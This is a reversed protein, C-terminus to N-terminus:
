YGGHTTRSSPALLDQALPRDRIIFFGAAGELVDVNQPLAEVRALWQAKQKAYRAPDAYALGGGILGDFPNSQAFVSGATLLAALVSFQLRRM